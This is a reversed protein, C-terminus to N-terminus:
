PQQQQKVGQHCLMEDGQQKELKCYIQAIHIIHCVRLPCYSCESAVHSHENLALFAGNPRRAGLGWKCLAQTGELLHGSADQGLFADRMQFATVM